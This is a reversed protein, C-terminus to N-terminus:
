LVPSGLSELSNCHVVVSSSRVSQIGGKLCQGRKRGNNKEEVRSQSVWGQGGTKKEKEEVRNNGKNKEGRGKGGKKMKNEREERLELLYTM